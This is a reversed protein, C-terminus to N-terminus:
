GLSSAPIPASQDVATRRLNRDWVIEDLQDLRRDDFAPSKLPDTFADREDATPSYLAAYNSTVLVPNGLQVWNRGIWPAVVAM